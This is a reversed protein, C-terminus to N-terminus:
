LCRCEGAEEKLIIESSEGSVGDGYERLNFRKRDM